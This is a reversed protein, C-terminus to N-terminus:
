SVYRRYRGLLKESSVPLKHIAQGPSFDERNNYLTSILMLIAHKIGAPRASDSYGCDYTIYWDTYGVYDDSVVLDGTVPNLTYDASDLTVEEDGTTAKVETIASVEGGFLMFSEYYGSFYQTLNGTTVLRNLYTQAIDCAVSILATIEDDDHDFLVRCQAKAEALTIFSFDTQSNIKYNM